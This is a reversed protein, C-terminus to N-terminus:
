QVEKNEVIAKLKKSDEVREQINFGVVRSLRDIFNLDVNKGDIMDRIIMELIMEQQKPNASKFMNVADSQNGELIKDINTKTLIKEYIDDLGHRRIVDRNLIVFNGAEVFNPHNEIIEVLDKYLIRKVQGYREFVFPKKDGRIRSLNLQHPTLSMVKIYDELSVKVQDEDETDMFRKDVEQSKELEPNIVKTELAKQFMNRLESLEQQLQEIKEKDSVTELVTTNAVTTVETVKKPRAM